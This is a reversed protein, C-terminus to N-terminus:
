NLVLNDLSLNIVRYKLASDFDLRASIFNGIQMMVTARNFYGLSELPALEIARDFCEVAEKFKSNDAKEVGKINLNFASIRNQKLQKISVGGTANNKM